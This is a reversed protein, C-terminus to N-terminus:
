KGFIYCVYGCKQHKKSSFANQCGLVCKLVWNELTTSQYAPKRITKTCEKQLEGRMLVWPGSSPDLARAGASPPPRRLRPEQRCRAGYACCGKQYYKCVTSPKSNALDHSFLCQSGERCVGHMFYRSLFCLCLAKLLM